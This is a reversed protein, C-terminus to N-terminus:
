LPILVGNKMRGLKAVFVPFRPADQSGIWFYKFKIVVGMWDAQNDWIIKRLANDFGTGVNFSAGEFDGNLGVVKLAGLVGKGVKNAKHTSRKAHGLNDRELENNNQMQEEFGVVLAEADTFRKVKILGRERLTSRGFKYAASASRIMIGEYGRNLCTEEYARLEAETSVPIQDLVSLFPNSGMGNAACTLRYEYSKDPYRFDDFVYFSVENGLPNDAGMVASLTRTFVDKDWPDGLILEGDLGNLKSRGFRAQVFKNPIPKLKRSVIKGNVVMARVGDLKPSAVMDTLDPVTDTMTAALMPKFLKM